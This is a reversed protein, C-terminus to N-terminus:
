YPLRQRYEKALDEIEDGPGNDEDEDMESGSKEAWGELFEDLGRRLRLEREAMTDAIGNLEQASFVSRLPGFAVLYLEKVLPCDGIARFLMKKARNLQGARIEFEIFIRWLIASQRTRESDVAATLGSRTREVEAEWRSKDWGAMWVEEIRRLVGKEVGGGEGLLARVKGRVGQGKEGDLFLGLLVSNSPYVAVAKEVRERLIAPPTPNRLIGLILREHSTSGAKERLLQNDFIRLAHEPGTSTLLEMLARLKVWPERAQGDTAADVNDDLNRKARLLVVGGSGEVGASRLVLKLAADANGALWELEVWDWWLQGIGPRAAPSPTSLVNEYVKRADDLRNRLQELRAHAAWHFLSDPTMSLFTRSLKLASKISSAAAFALSFVDWHVDDNGLRLQDFVNKVFTGDVGDLDQKNWLTRFKGDSSPVGLANVTGWGWSSILNQLGSTYEREQTLERNQETIGKPFIADLYAPRTLYTHCWRDDSYVSADPASKLRLQSVARFGPLHLGLVTLWAYRFIDKANPSSLDLLLDRIDSFLISSYPDSDVESDTSRRPLIQARDALSESFGFKRYPDFDEIPAPNPQSPPPSPPASPRGSSYWSDWGKAGVEGLRPHESEWFEELSDLRSPLPLGYLAQPIQFTLEAQAQFLATAREGFGTNQFAVALRWFLRVKGVEDAQVAALARKADEVVASIGNNGKRIRWELWEMWIDVGDVKRLADEWEARLKSEHWVEEGANAAVARSLISLSIESRASTSNKSTTPVTLLTHSLLSLWNSVSPDAALRENISRMTAQHSNPTDEESSDGMDSEGGDSESESDSNDKTDEISRYSQEHVTRSPLRLFGDREEYKSSSATANVLSRTPARSLLARSSADTLSPTKRKAPVGVEIGYATRFTSFSPSLGLVVRGTRYKPVERANLGGYQINLSDGKRDSYFFRSTSDSRSPEDVPRDKSKAAKPIDKDRKRRREKQKPSPPPPDSPLEPFSAFSPVFAM